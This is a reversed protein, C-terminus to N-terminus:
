KEQYIGLQEFLDKRDNGDRVDSILMKVPSKRQFGKRIYRCGMYFWAFRRFIPYKKLLMWNKEGREQLLYLFQIPNHFEGVIKVGKDQENIKRGFNGQEMIYAMLKKCINDNVDRCWTISDQQLGLYIQCMRTVTKALKEYETNHLVPQMKGYWDDDHLKKDVYMMWDIIQRLGLGSKLRKVIHLLLVIGNQLAPLVPIEYGDVQVNNVSCMGEAMLQQLYKGEEGDPMGAPKKHIEYIFGNKQLTIHYDVHDEEYQLQYGNDLMLQYARQFEDASVLFDIDGMTRASPDPYYIAASMGKLITMPIQHCKMLQVLENQEYLLQYFFGVQQMRQNEWKWQVSEPLTMHEFVWDAPIGSITQENLETYVADWDLKFLEYSVPNSPHFLATQILSNIMDVKM